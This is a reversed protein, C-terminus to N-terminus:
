HKSVHRCNTMSEVVRHLNKTTVSQGDGSVSMCIYAILFLPTTLLSHMLVAVPYRSVPRRGEPRHRTRRM